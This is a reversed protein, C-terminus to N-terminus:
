IQLLPIPGHVMLNNRPLVSRRILRPMGYRFVSLTPDIDKLHLTPKVINTLNDDSIGSDSDPSLSVIPISIATDVSILFPDSHAINGAIDEVSATIRHDGDVM